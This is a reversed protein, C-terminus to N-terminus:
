DEVDVELGELGALDVEHGLEALLESIAQNLAEGRVNKYRIVGKDDILYLTPWATVLWQDSIPGQTGNPGNWFSRWTIQKKEVTERTAIRDKDSNVGIIEFPM